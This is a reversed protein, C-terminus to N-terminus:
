KFTAIATVSYANAPSTFSVSYGVMTAGNREMTVMQDLGNSDARLRLAWPSGPVGVTYFNGSDAYLGVILENAKTTAATTGTAHTTGGPHEAFATRDLMGTAALGTYEGVWVSLSGNSVSGANWLVTVSTIGAPVNSAYWIGADISPADYSDEVARAYTAHTPGNDTISQVKPTSVFGTAEIVFILADGAKTVPITIAKSDGAANSV